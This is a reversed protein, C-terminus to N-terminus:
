SVYYERMYTYTLEQLYYDLLMNELVEDLGEPIYMFHQNNKLYNQYGISLLNLGQKDIKNLLETNVTAVKGSMSLLIVFDHEDVHLLQDNYISDKLVPKGMVCFDGQMRLCSAIMEDSGVLIIRKSKLIVECCQKILEPNIIRNFDDKELFGFMVNQIQKNNKLKVRRQMQNIRIEVHSIFMQKFIMYKNYGYIKMFRNLTSVSVFSKEAVEQVTMDKIQHCHTILCYAIQYNTDHIEANNIFNFLTTLFINM